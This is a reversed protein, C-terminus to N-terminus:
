PDLTVVVDHPNACRAGGRSLVPVQPSCNTQCPSIHRGEGRAAYGRFQLSERPKAEDVDGEQRAGSGIEPTNPASGGRRSGREVLPTAAFNSLPNPPNPTLDPRPTLDPWPACVLEKRKDLQSETLNRARMWRIQRRNTTRRVGISGGHCRYSMVQGRQLSDKNVADKSPRM